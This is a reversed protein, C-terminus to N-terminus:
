VKPVLSWDVPPRTVSVMVTASLPMHVGAVAVNASVISRSGTAVAPVFVASVTHLLVSAYVIGAPYEDAFPVIEQLVLPSPVNVPPPM